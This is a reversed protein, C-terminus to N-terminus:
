LFVALGLSHRRASLIGVVRLSLPRDAGHTGWRPRSQALPLCVASLEMARRRISAPNHGM